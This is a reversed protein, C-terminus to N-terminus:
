ESEIFSYFFYRDEGPTLEFLKLAPMFMAMEADFFPHAALRQITAFLWHLEEQSEWVALAARTGDKAIYVHSFLFHDIDYPRPEGFLDRGQIPMSWTTTAGGSRAGLFALVRRVKWDESELRSSSKALRSKVKRVRRPDLSDRRVRGLTITAPITVAPM